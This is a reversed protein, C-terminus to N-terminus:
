QRVDSDFPLNRTLLMNINPEAHHRTMACILNEKIIFFFSQVDLVSVLGWGRGLVDSLMENKGGGRGEGGEGERERNRIKLFM